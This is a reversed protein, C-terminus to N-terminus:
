MRLVWTQHNMVAELPKPMKKKCPLCKVMKGAKKNTKSVPNRQTARVTRSSLSGEERGETSPNFQGFKMLKLLGKFM